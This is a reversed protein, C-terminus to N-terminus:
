WTDLIEGEPSLIWEVSFTLRDEGPNLSCLHECLTRPLMPIVKQVLYVSTARNEAEKDLATHDKVFYSVDAIHVAVKYTNNELLEISLADDLDRATLPDITFVCEQRFDRRKQIENEPIKFPLNPLNEEIKEPFEEFDVANELLIGKTRADIDKDSGLKQELTGLAFPIQDWQTLKALFLFDEFDQPRTFFDPPCHNKAIKMRPFRNDIPSFLAYNPNKDPFLKLYGVTCRSNKKELISVVKGTKRVFQQWIDPYTIKM